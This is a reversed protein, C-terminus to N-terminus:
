QSASLLRFLCIRKRGIVLKKSRIRFLYLYNYECIHFHNLVLRMRRNHNGIGKQLVDKRERQIIKLTQQLVFAQLLGGYNNNLPQTHSGIKM